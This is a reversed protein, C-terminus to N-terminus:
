SSTWLRRKTRSSLRTSRNSNASPSTDQPRTREATRVTSSMNRRQKVSSRALFTERVRQLTRDFGPHLAADHAAELFPKLLEPQNPVALRWRQDEQDVLYLLSDHEVFRTGLPSTGEPVKATLELIDKWRQEMQYAGTIARKLSEDLRAATAFFIPAHDELSEEEESVPKCEAILRSLADPVLHIRGPRYIVELNHFQSLYQSARVLRLNLRETSTTDMLHVQKTIATLAGHDVFVYVKPASDLTHRTKRIAWVLGAMELETPWYRREAKSLTRSLFMIPQISGKPFHSAKRTGGETDEYSPSPDGEVHYLHAGIGFQKSTDVDLYLNRSPNPHHLRRPDKFCDKLRQFASQLAPTPTVPTRQAFHKRAGGKTAPCTKLMQTKLEQLPAELFAYYPAYDRLWGTMGIFTELDALREPFKMRQIADIKDEHTLLGLGDVRQGLLTVSPYGLFAKQPSLSVNRSDLISFLKDLHELHGEFTESHIVIDDIYERTTDRVGRLIGDFQRQVHQVSNKFGMVAVKFTEQGRHTNVSLKWQDEEDVPWQYFFSVADVVSIHRAGRLTRVIDEQLPLPYADKLAISNLGRVDVVVRPKARPKGDVMITRWTVFVPFGFPSHHKSYELKGQEQLKDFTKDVEQRDRASLPYVKSTLRAQEWGPKLPIKLPTAGKVTLGKDEWLRPYKEVMAKLQEAHETDGYITVGRDLTTEMSPDLRALGLSAM